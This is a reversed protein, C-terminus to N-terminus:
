HSGEPTPKRQKGCQGSLISREVPDKVARIAEQSCNGPTAAPVAPTKGLQRWAWASLLVVAILTM